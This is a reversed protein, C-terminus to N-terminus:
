EVGMHKEPDYGVSAGIFERVTVIKGGGFNLKQKDNLMAVVEQRLSRGIVKKWDGQTVEHEALWFGRTLKVPHQKEDSADFWKKVAAQEAAPSGMIFDGPLCWRFRSAFSNEYVQGAEREELVCSNQLGLSNDQAKGAAMQVALERARREVEAQQAGRDAKKLAM